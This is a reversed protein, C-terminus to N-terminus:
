AAGPGDAPLTVVLETGRGPTSTVEITGGHLEVLERTIALGLGSGGTGRTRSRDARWFRDFLHPVDEARVGVGDDAVRVELVADRESRRATLTVRSGGSHQLANELLNDAVQRLRERDGTLVLGDAVDVVVEMGATAARVHASRAADALLAGLDVRDWRAELRGSEALTLTHLDAAIRQLHMTEGHLVDVLRRDTPVVGDQAGELWGRLTTLPTRLEHAVDSTMRRQQDRARQLEASMTNFAAALESVEDDGRVPVTVTLDGDALRRAARTVARVQRVAPVGVFWATALVLALIGASVAAIRAVSGPSLDWVGRVDGRSDTLYVDVPPAVAGSSAEVFADDVCDGRPTGAQLPVVAGDPGALALVVRDGPEPALVVSTGAPAGAELLCLRALATVRDLARQEDPLPADLDALGCAAGAAADPQGAALVPRGTPWVHVDAATLGLCSAVAAAREALDARDAPGLALVGALNPPLSWAVRPVEEVVTPVGQPGEGGSGEPAPGAAGPGEPAAGAGAAGEGARAQAREDVLAAWPDVLWRAHEPLPLGPGTDVVLTGDAAVVAVRRDHERALLHVLPVADRWDGHAGAWAELEATIAFDAASTVEAVAIRYTPRTSQTLWVTGLVAATTVAVVAVLLRAVLSRRM